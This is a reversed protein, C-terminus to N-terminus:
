KKILKKQRWSVGVLLLPLCWSSSSVGQDLHWSKFGCLNLLAHLSQPILGDHLDLLKCGNQFIFWVLTLLVCVWHFEGYGNIMPMIMWHNLYVESCLTYSYELLSNNGPFKQGGLFEFNLWCKEPVKLKKWCWLHKGVMPFDIKHDDNFWKELWQSYVKRAMSWGWM